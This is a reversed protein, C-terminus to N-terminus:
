HSTDIIRCILEALKEAHSGTLMSFHDGSVRQIQLNNGLIPAWGLDDTLQRGTAMTLVASQRPRILTVPLQITPTQYRMLALVHSKCMDIRRQLDDRTAGPPLVGRQKTEALIRDLAETPRLEKLEAYEIRISAGSFWNSFNVLDFLFRADDDLDVHDLISATPTDIFILNVPQNAQQLRRALEYAFVGGTSWGILHYPGTPQNRRILSGYAEALDDMNDHPPAYPTTGQPRITMVQRHQGLYQALQQYCRLDGGVPHICYYPPNIPHTQLPLLTAGGESRVAAQRTAAFAGNNEREALQPMRDARVPSLGDSAQASPQSEDLTQSPNQADKRDIPLILLLSSALSRISPGDMLLAMPIEIDLKTELSAKFEMAMLSDIGIVSLPQDISLDDSQNGMIRALEALLYTALLSLRDAEAALSLKQLFVQDAQAAEAGEGAQMQSAFARFFPPTGRQFQKALSQWNVDMVVHDEGLGDRLVKQFALLALEPQQLRLGRDAVQGSRNQDVAMGADAWPGWNIVTATLGHKRRWIALGDLYANASAYNAQGPSGLVSAVSSFLVFFDLKWDASLEHLNWAGQAKAPLPEMFQDEGMDYLLGDALTGAAHVIGCIPPTNGPLSAIAQQLSSKDAVDAQLCHVRVQDDISKWNEITKLQSDTPMRRGILGINRAGQEILNEAIKLGLAGLGGTILYLADAHVIPQNTSPEISKDNDEAAHSFEVIVKGINKRQAMYRFAAATEEVPFSALPLPQYSGDALKEMVEAFLRQIEAPRQRLMRDLDIAFYSLNDQFPALGIMRNQYIDTKGIELFRGYASLVALSKPIAEGPLSNLVLDVGTEQTDHLIQKAFDTSRTSYIHQVGLNRVFERKIDSGATAFVTAGVSLAIQIAALGVGGAAAHILIKEQPQIRGLWHLAYHATLFTIPITAAQAHSINAPKSALAFEATTGHSAFSYPVVGFVEDGVKFRKVNEGIATVVGSCEIGLPPEQQNLGPYLGMAKLIDSFNLGTAHIQLQVQDDVPASQPAPALYLQDFTGQGKSRLRFPTAPVSLTQPTQSDSESVRDDALARELRAVWRQNQRFVLQSEPKPANLTQLLQEATSQTLGDVPLDVLTVGGSYELNATRGLGWLAAHSPIGHDDPLVTQANQTVMWYRPPKALVGRSLAAIAQLPLRWCPREATNLFAAPTADPLGVAGVNTLDIVHDCSDTPNAFAVAFLETYANPANADIQYHDQDLQVFETGAVATICRTGQERLQKVLGETPSSAAPQSDHQPPLLLVVVSPKPQSADSPQNSQDTDPQWRVRYFWDDINATGGGAAGLSQVTAGRMEVLPQDRADLLVIDAVVTELSDANPGNARRKVAVSVTQLPDGLVTVQEIGTPLYTRNPQGGAADRPIVGAMAQLAADLLAPHIHYRGSERRVADGFDLQARSQDAISALTSVAQFRTGYDLGRKRLSSYFTDHDVTEPNSLPYQFWCGHGNQAATQGHETSSATGSRQQLNGCAHLTWSADPPADCSRSLITFQRQEQNGDAVVVQVQRASDAALFMATQISLGSVEHQGPGFIATAAALAMEVYATAPTVVTGQIVHEALWDPQSAQLVSHFVRGGQSSPLEEGLLPNAPRSSHPRQGATKGSAAYWHRKREFPYTPLPPSLPGRAASLKDWRVKAGNRYLTALSHLMVSSDDRGSRLPPLWTYTPSHNIQRGMALLVPAPGAEVFHNVGLQVLSHMGAEFQVPNRLHQRWYDGDPANELPEGTLNSIVAQHPPQMPITDAFRQFEDLIPDMLPSHFAHGVTLPTVKVGREGFARVLREIEVADGSIVTNSPGNIAALTVAPTDALWQRVTDAPAAVAAMAGQGPCQHMLEARRCILRLGDELSMVGALTAAVYEGVSHGLMAVPEIGWSRWLLALSYELAFLAPQTFRTEALREPAHDGHMVALLSGGLLDSAIEDCHRLYHAFLPQQRMLAQGMGPYQSGQGTFLFAIKPADFGHHSLNTSIPEALQRLASRAQGIDTVTLTARHPFHNRGHNVAHCFDDLPTDPHQDLYDALNAAVQRLGSESKASLALLQDNTSAPQVRSSNATSREGAEELIVHANTGGFGFSSVGARRPSGPDWAALSQSVRLRHGDLSVHPSLERFEAQPTYQRHQMMLVVKILSAIGAATELHGINAKVSSFLCPPAAPNTSAFVRSLAELEIPDGLPTGTGHAEVYSIDDPSLGSEALARRIVAEQSRSNPAAIGSTRGDQNVASGRVLALIPDGAAIADSLRKLLIIGVGEGRVYGNARADFPRCVGDPSLMKANSFAITTEPTLILNAGGCVAMDTEYRHLHRVAADLAVLSSSCATDVILSPGHWDFLYSLRNAAISLANGTGCHADIQGYYDDMTVPVKAYDAAGIGVFVGTRSGATREPSIGANEMAEWAVELLLRQQPDMKAAERPAIGFFGADFQDIHDLFAGMRVATRGAGGVPSYLDDNEWRDAPIERMGRGQEGILRWYSALDPAQPFRCSMGVIAIPEYVQAARRLTRELLHRRSPTLDALRQTLGSM